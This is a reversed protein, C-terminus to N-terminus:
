YEIVQAGQQRQAAREQKRALAHQAARERRIADWAYTRVDMPTAQLEHWNWHMERMVEFDV